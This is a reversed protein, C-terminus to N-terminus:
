TIFPKSGISCILQPYCNAFPICKNINKDMHGKKIKKRDEFNPEELLVDCYISEKLILECKCFAYLAIHLESM